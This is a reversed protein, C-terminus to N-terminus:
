DVYVLFSRHSADVRVIYCGRDFPGVSAAGNVHGRAIVRGTLDAVTYEGRANGDIDIMAGKAVIRLPDLAIPDFGRVRGGDRCVDLVTFSGAYTTENLGPVSVSYWDIGLPSTITRGLVATCPITAIPGDDSRLSARITVIGESRAVVGDIDADPVLTTPDFAIAMTVTVNSLDARAPTSDQHVVIRVREGPRAALSDVRLVCCRGALRRGIVLLTDSASQGSITLTIIHLTRWVPRSTNGTFRIFYRRREGPGVNSADDTWVLFGSIRSTDPAAFTETGTNVLEFTATTDECPGVTGVDITDRTFTFQLQATSPMAWLGLMCVTVALALRMNM